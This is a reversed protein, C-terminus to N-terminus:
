DKRCLILFIYFSFKFIRERKLLILDVSRFKIEFCLGGCIENSIRSLRYPGIEGEQRGGQM